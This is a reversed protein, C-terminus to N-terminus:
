TLSSFEDSKAANFLDENQVDMLQVTASEEWICYQVVILNIVHVFPFILDDNMLRLSCYISICICVRISIVIEIVIVISRFVFVKAVLIKRV